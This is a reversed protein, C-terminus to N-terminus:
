QHKQEPAELRKELRSLWASSEASGSEDEAKKKAKRGTAVKFGMSIAFQTCEKENESTWWDPLQAITMAELVEKFIDTRKKMDNPLPQDLTKQWNEFNSVIEVYLQQPSLPTYHAKSHDERESDEEM